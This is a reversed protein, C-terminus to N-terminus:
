RHGNARYARVFRNFDYCGLNLGYTATFHNVEWDKIGQLNMTMNKFLLPFDKVDKPIPIGCEYEISDDPGFLLIKDSSIPLLVHGGALPNRAVDIEISSNDNKRANYFQFGRTCGNGLKTAGISMAGFTFLRNARIGANLPDSKENLLVAFLQALGGGLSHGTIILEKKKCTNKILEFDMLDVLGELEKKVGAHVGPIGWANVPTFNGNNKWDGEGRASDTGQFNMICQKESSWLGAFDTDKSGKEMFAKIFQFGAAELDAKADYSEKRAHNGFRYASTCAALADCADLSAKSRRFGAKSPIDDNAIALQPSHAVSTMADRSTNKHHIRGATKNCACKRPVCGANKRRRVFRLRVVRAKRPHAETAGNATVQQSSRMISSAVVGDSAVFIALILLRQLAMAQPRV